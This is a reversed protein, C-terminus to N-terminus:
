TLPPNPSRLWQISERMPSPLAVDPSRSPQYATVWHGLSIRYEVMIWDTGGPGRLGESRRAVGLQWEGWYRSAFIGSSPDLIVERVSRVYDDLRTGDPWERRRQVHWLFHVELPTLTDRGVLIRGQWALGALRGRVKERSDPDFGAAAVYTLVLNLENETLVYNGAAARRILDDPLVL